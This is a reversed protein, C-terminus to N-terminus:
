ALGISKWFHKLGLRDAVYEEWDEFSSMREQECEYDSLIMERTSTSTQEWEICLDNRQEATM